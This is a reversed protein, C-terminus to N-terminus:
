LKIAKQEKSYVYMGLALFSFKYGTEHVRILNDSWSFNKILLFILLPQIIFLSLNYYHVYRFDTKYIKPYILAIFFFYYLSFPLNIVVRQISEYTSNIIIDDGLLEFNFTSYKNKIIILYSSIFDSFLYIIIKKIILFYFISTFLLRATLDFISKDIFKLKTRNSDM